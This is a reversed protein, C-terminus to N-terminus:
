ANLMEEGTWSGWFVVGGALTKVLRKLPVEVPSGIEGLPEDLVVDEAGM